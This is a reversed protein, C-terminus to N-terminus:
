RCGHSIRQQTVLAETDGLVRAKLWVNRFAGRPDLREVLRVVDAHRPYFPAISAADAHFVKGRHPRVEFPTLADEIQIVVVQVAGPERKWNVHIGVGDEEHNMGMWLRDAAVRCIKSVQLLPRVRDALARLTGIAGLAHRRPILYESQIEKGSSPVHGM